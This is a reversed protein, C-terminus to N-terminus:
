WWFSGVPFLDESKRPNDKTHKVGFFVLGFGDINEDECSILIKKEGM